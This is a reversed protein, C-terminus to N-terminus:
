FPLIGTPDQIVNNFRVEFHLHPGSSNGTNGVAGIVTGPSVSQGCAIYIDSLHAYLTMYPGHAIVILYGYGFSNWGRFIVNGGLAASVPTGVPAALDVGAHIGSVGRIWTYGNLPRIWGGFGGPNPQQGCSGPDGPEFAITGGAGSGDGGSSEVRPTWNIQEGQGGPIFVRLGSRLITEPTANFLGNSEWGIIAQPEVGYGRALDAISRDNAILEVAGDVPPITLSLGPRLNGLISRPNSWAISEPQISFREAIVFLTDGSVVEYEVPESRPRDPVRTFPNNINRILTFGNDVAAPILPQSLIQAMEEQSLTAVAPAAALMVTDLTPAIDMQTPLPTPAVTTTESGVVAPTENPILFLAASALTLGVATTLMLLGALRRWIPLPDGDRVVSVPSTDAAPDADPEHIANMEETM